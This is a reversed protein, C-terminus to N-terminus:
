LLPALLRSLDEALLSTWRRPIKGAIYTRSHRVLEGAWSRMAAVEAPTYVAIGIEFNVFLSRLDFNASGFVAHKDDVIVVKAHLMAAQFLLVRAGALQLDRLYQRRAYDTVAHNSKEPVILTVDVGARAKVLLSRQLVEDPIFYPTIIWVSQEAEQVFSVLGEYLPDGHVDPGSAIVQLDCTGQSAPCVPSAEERLEQISKDTAFNWDAFFVEDILGAAPGEIVAGFDTWRQDWATPGMYERAMNRGGVIATEHDFVAIKRHNRLNASHRTSLPAVPMFRRVTGGARRIPECFRGAAVFSGLGDLLLRVTVGERARKALEEVLAKGTEDRALIFTTIHITRRAARIRTVFENFSAEGTRLVKLRNGGIPPGSGNAMITRNSPLHMVQERAAPAGPLRLQMKDKRAVLKKIKRGGFLLYLPVGLYPILVIGLLWAMTNGPQRKESMLRAIAFVALLFGGVTLLHSWISTEVVHTVEEM